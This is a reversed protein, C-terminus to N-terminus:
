DCNKMKLGEGGKKEFIKIFRYYLYFVKGFLLFNDEGM